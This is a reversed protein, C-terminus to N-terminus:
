GGTAAGAAASRAASLRALEYRVSELDTPLTGKDSMRDLEASLQALKEDTVAGAKVKDAQERFYDDHKDTGYAMKYSTPKTYAWLWAIPWLLGGFFLSLLCLTHIADRQPHHKKHAIKEPMVHLVWFVAIGVVPVIFLVAVGLVDAMKEEFEHSMLAAQAGLPWLALALLACSWAATSPLTPPRCRL